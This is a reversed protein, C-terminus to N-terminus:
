ARAASPSAQHISPTQRIGPNARCSEFKLRASRGLWKSGTSPDAAVPAKQLRRLAALSHAAHGFPCSARKGRYCRAHDSPLGLGATLTVDFNSLM